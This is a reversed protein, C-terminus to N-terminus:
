QVDKLFVRWEFRLRLLAGDGAQAGERKLSLGRLALGPQQTVAANVFRRAAAYSGEADFAIDQYSGSASAGLRYEAGRVALGAQAAEQMLSAAIAPLESRAPLLPLAPLPASASAAHPAAAGGTSVSAQLAQAKAQADRAQRHLPPLVLVSALAAACALALGAWGTRGLRLHLLELREALVDRWTPQNMADAGQM